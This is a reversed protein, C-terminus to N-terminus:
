VHCGHQEMLTKAGPLSKSLRGPEAAFTYGQDAKIAAHESSEVRILFRLHDVIWQPRLVTALWYGGEDLSYQVREDPQFEPGEYLVFSTAPAEDTMLGETLVNWYEVGNAYRGMCQITGLLTMAPLLSLCVVRKGIRPDQRLEEGVKIWGQKTLM